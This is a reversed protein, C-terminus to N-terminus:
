QCFALGGAAVVLMPMRDPLSILNMRPEFDALIRTDLTMIRMEEEISIFVKGTQDHSSITYPGTKLLLLTNIIEFNELDVGWVTSEQASIAYITMGLFGPAIGTVPGDFELTKIIKRKRVDFVWVRGDWASPLFIYRGFSDFYARSAPAPLKLPGLSQKTKMDILHVVAEDSPVPIAIAFQITASIGLQIIGQDGDLMLRNIIKMDITDIVVIEPRDVISVYLSVEGTTDTNFRLEHAGELGKVRGLVKGDPLSIFEVVGKNWDAVVLYEEDPDIAILHPKIELQIEKVIQRTQPDTFWLRDKLVDTAIVLKNKEDVLLSAPVQDLTIYGLTANSEANIIVIEPEEGDVVFIYDVINFNKVPGFAWVPAPLLTILGFLLAPIWFSFYTRISSKM